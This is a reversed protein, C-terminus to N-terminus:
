GGLGNSTGDCYSDPNCVDIIKNIRYVTGNKEKAIIVINIGCGYPIKFKVQYDIIANAPVKIIAITSTTPYTHSDHFIGISDLNLTSKIHIPFSSTSGIEALTIQIENTYSFNGDGYFGKIAEDMNSIKWLKANTYINEDRTSVNIQDTSALVNWRSKIYNKGLVTKTTKKNNNITTVTVNDEYFSNRFRFKLIPYKNINPSTYVNYIVKNNSEIIIRTLYDEKLQRYKAREKGRMPNKILFTSEVFDKTQKAKYFVRELAFLQPSILILVLLYKNM